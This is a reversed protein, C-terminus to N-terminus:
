DDKGNCSIKNNDFRATEKPPLLKEVDLVLVELVFLTIDYQPGQVNRFRVGLDTCGSGNRMKIQIPMSTVLPPRPLRPARAV